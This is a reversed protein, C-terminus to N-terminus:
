LEDVGAPETMVEPLYPQASAHCLGAKVVMAM